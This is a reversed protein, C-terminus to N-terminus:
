RLGMQSTLHALDSELNKHDTYIIINQGLLISRFEKLTMVISLLELNTVTYKQQHKSLKKSYFAIPHNNQTIVSGLQKNSADTYIEFPQNFNPYALM